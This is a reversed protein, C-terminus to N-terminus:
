YSNSGSSMEMMTSPQVGDLEGEQGRGWYRLLRGFVFRRYSPVTAIMALSNLAGHSSMLALAYCSVTTQVAILIGAIPIIYTVLPILVQCVLAQLTNLHKAQAVRSSMFGIKRIARLTIIALAVTTLLYIASAVNMEINSVLWWPNLDKHLTLLNLNSDLIEQPDRVHYAIYARATTQPIYTLSYFAVAAVVGYHTFIVLIILNRNSKMPWSQEHLLLFRYLFGLQISQECCCICFLAVVTAGFICLPDDEIAFGWKRLGIGGILPLFSMPQIVLSLMLDVSFAWFWINCLFWKYRGM